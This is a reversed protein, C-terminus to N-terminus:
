DFTATTLLDSVVVTCQFFFLSVKHLNRQYKESVLNARIFMNQKFISQLLTTYYLVIGLTVDTDTNRYTVFQMEWSGDAWLKM